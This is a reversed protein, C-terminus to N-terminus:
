HMAQPVLSFTNVGPREQPGLHSLLEKLESEKGIAAQATGNFDLGTSISYHGSGALLLPGSITSLNIDTGAPTNAFIFHYDGLPSISSLLSSANLWDAIATGIVGQKSIVLLDSTVIIRGGLAAPKLFDSAEDLLLAPIPIYAYKIAVQDFSVEISMPNTQKSAEWNLQVRFKGTLIALPEVKWHLSSLTILGDGRQHLIPNASGQWITGQLNGLEVRDNSAYKLAVSLLSSPASVILIILYATFLLVWTWKSMSQNRYSEM